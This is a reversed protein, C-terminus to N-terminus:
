AKAREARWKEKEEDTLGLGYSHYRAQYERSAQRFAEYDVMRAQLGEIFDCPTGAEWVAEYEFPKPPEWISKDERGEREYIQKYGEATVIWHEILDEISNGQVCNISDVAMALWVGTEQFIM